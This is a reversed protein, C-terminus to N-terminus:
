KTTITVRNKFNSAVFPANEELWAWMKEPDLVKVSAPTTTFATGNWYETYAQNFGTQTQYSVQTM